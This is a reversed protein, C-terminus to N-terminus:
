ATRFTASRVTLLATRVVPMRTALPLLFGHVVGHGRPLVALPDHLVADPRRAELARHYLTWLLTEPVGELGPDIRTV